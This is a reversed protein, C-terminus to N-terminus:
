ISPFPFSFNKKLQHNSNLKLSSFSRVWTYQPIVAMKQVVKYRDGGHTPLNDLAVLPIVAEEGSQGVLDIRYKEKRSLRAFAELVMVAAELSRTLRGDYQNRYMSASLDFIFRIRKAKLQVAGIEAITIRPFMM